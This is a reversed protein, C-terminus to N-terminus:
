SSGYHGSDGVTPKVTSRDPHAKGQEFTRLTRRRDVHHRKCEFALDAPMKSQRVELEAKGFKITIPLKFEQKAGGELKTGGVFTPTGSDRDTVTAKDPAPGLDVDFHLDAVDTANVVWVHEAAVSGVSAAGGALEKFMPTATGAKVRLFYGPTIGQKKTAAKSKVSIVWRSEKTKWSVSKGELGHRSQWEKRFKAVLDADAMASGDDKTMDGELEAEITFPFDQIWDHDDTFTKIEDAKTGGKGPSDLADWAADLGTQLAAGTPATTAPTDFTLSEEFWENAVVPGNGSQRYQYVQVFKPVFLKGGSGFVDTHLAKILATDRGANCARMVIQTDSDIGGPSALSTPPTGNAFRDIETGIKDTHLGEESGTFLKIKISQERGHAVINIQGWDGFKEHEKDLMDLIEQFSMQKRAIVADANLKWFQTAAQFYADDRGGTIFTIVPRPTKNVVFHDFSRVMVKTQSTFKKPKPKVIELQLRLEFVGQEQAKDPLPVDTTRGGAKIKVVPPSGSVTPVEPNAKGDARPALSFANDALKGHFTVVLKDKGPTPEFPSADDIEFIRVFVSDANKWEDKSSDFELELTEGANVVNPTLSAHLDDAM